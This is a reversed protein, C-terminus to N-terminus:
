QINPELSKRRNRTMMFESLRKQYFTREENCQSQNWQVLNVFFATESESLQMAKAFLFINKQTHKNEM